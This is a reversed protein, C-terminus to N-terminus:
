KEKETDAETTVKGDIGILLTGSLIAAAGLFWKISLEEQFLM